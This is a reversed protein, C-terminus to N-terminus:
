AHSGAFPDLGPDVTTLWTCTFGKDHKPPLFTFPTYAISLSQIHRGPTSRCNSLISNFQQSFSRYHIRSSVFDSDKMPYVRLSMSRPWSPYSSHTTTHTTSMSRPQSPYSSHTTTHTSSYDKYTADHFRCDLFSAIRNEPPGIVSSPDQCLGFDSDQRGYVLLPM